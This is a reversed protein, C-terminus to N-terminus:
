PQAEQAVTAPVCVFDFEGAYRSANLDKINEVCEAATPSRGIVYTSSPKHDAQTIAILLWVTLTKM